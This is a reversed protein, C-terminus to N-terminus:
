ARSIFASDPNPAVPGAQRVMATASATSPSHPITPHLLAASGFAVGVASGGWTAAIHASCRVQTFTAGGVSVYTGPGSVGRDTRISARM